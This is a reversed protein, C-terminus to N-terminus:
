IRLIKICWVSFIYFKHLFHVAVIPIIFVGVCFFLQWGEREPLEGASGRGALAKEKDTPTGPASSTGPGRGCDARGAAAGVGGGCGM